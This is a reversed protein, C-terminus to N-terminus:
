GIMCPAVSVQGKNIAKPLEFSLASGIVGDRDGVAFKVQSGDVKVEKIDLYSTDLVIKDVSDAAAELTLQVSGHFVKADWDIIWNLDLHKTKIQKYNSQTALDQDNSESGGRATTQPKSDSM